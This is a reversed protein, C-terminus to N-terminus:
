CIRDAIASRLTFDYPGGVHLLVKLDAVYSEESSVLEELIRRRHIARDRALKGEKKATVQDDDISGRSATKVIRSSRNSRLRHSRLFIPSHPTDIKSQLRVTASKIASRIGSSSWSSAKQHGNLRRSEPLDVDIPKAEGFDDLTWREKRVTLSHKGNPGHPRLTDILRKLPNESKFPHEVAINFSRPGTEGRSANSPLRPNSMMEQKRSDFSLSRDANHDADRTSEHRSYLSEGYGVNLDIDELPGVEALLSSVKQEHPKPPTDNGWSTRLSIQKATWKM